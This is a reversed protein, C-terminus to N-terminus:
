PQPLSIKRSSSYSGKIAVTAVGDNNSDSSEENSDWELSRHHCQSSHRDVSVLCCSRRCSKTADDGAHSLPSM